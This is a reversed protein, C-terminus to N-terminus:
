TRIDWVKVTKDYSSTILTNEDAWKVCKVYDNHAELGFLPELSSLEWVNVVGDDAGSAFTVKNPSVGISNIAV